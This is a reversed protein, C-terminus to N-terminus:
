LNYKKLIARNIYFLLEKKTQNTLGIRPIISFNSSIDKKIFKNPNTTYVYKYGKSKLIELVQKNYHEKHGFPIAFHKLFQNGLNDKIFKQNLEIQKILTEEDCNSLVFHDHSHCGFNVNENKLEQIDNLDLYIKKKVKIKDSLYSQYFDQNFKGKDMIKGVPNDNEEYQLFSKDLLLRSYLEKNEAFKLNTVWNQNNIVASGNLFITYPINNIKLIPHVNKLVSLYGDDFTLAAYNKNKALKKSSVLEDLSIIKFHEKILNIQSTFEKIPTSYSKSFQISDLNSVDHWIFIFRNGKLVKLLFTNSLISKLKNKIM